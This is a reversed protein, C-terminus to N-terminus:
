RMSSGPFFVNAAFIPRPEFIGLIPIDFGLLVKECISFFQWRQYNSFRASTTMTDAHHVYVQEKLTVVSCQIGLTHFEYFSWTPLWLECRATHVLYSPGIITSCTWSSKKTTLGKWCLGFWCTSLETTNFTIPSLKTILNEIVFWHAGPASTKSPNVM